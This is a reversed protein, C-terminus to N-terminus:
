TSSLLARFRDATLGMRLVDHRNRGIRIEDELVGEVRFGISENLRINRLHTQLTSVYFKELGLREIGYKLWLATAEEAFGKGRAESVGILKRLEARRQNQDVDLFAVGGIPTADPLTVIGIENAPNGLLAAVEMRQATACSLLFHRGYDDQMWKELLDVDGRDARRISIRRSTLPLEDVNLDLYRLPPIQRGDAPPSEPSADSTSDMLANILRVFDIQSFGYRRAEKSITRSFVSITEEPIKHSMDIV